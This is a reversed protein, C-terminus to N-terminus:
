IGYLVGPTVLKLSRAVGRLDITIQQGLKRGPDDADPWIIVDAGRLSKSFAPQWGNSGGPATTARDGVGMEHRFRDNLADACKEGEVIWIRCGQRVAAVVSPLEYLVRRVDGLGNVREGNPGPRWQYFSKRRRNTGDAYMETWENREIVYLLIGNEDVYPYSAVREKRTSRVLEPPPTAHFSPQAVTERDFRETRWSDRESHPPMFLGCAHCKGADGDGELTAFGHRAKCAPCETRRNSFKLRDRGPETSITSM